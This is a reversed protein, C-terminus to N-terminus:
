HWLYIFTLIQKEQLLDNLPYPRQNVQLQVWAALHEKGRSQGQFINETWWEWLPLQELSVPKLSYPTSAMQITTYRFGTIYVKLIRSSSHLSRMKSRHLVFRMLSKGQFPIQLPDADKRLSEKGEERTALKCVQVKHVFLFFTTKSVTAGEADMKQKKVSSEKELDTKRPEM